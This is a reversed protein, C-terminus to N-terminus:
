LATVKLRLFRKEGTIPLVFTHTRGSGTDAIPTWSGGTLTASGEAEYLIDTIGPPEVFSIILGAGDGNLQAQPLQPTGGTTPNLAFAYELLNPTSDGDSDDLTGSVESPINNAVVWQQYTLPTTFSLIEGLQPDLQEDNDARLRYYYITGPVLNSVPLSVPQPALSAAFEITTTTQTLANPATGYLFRASTPFGNPNVTGELNAVTSIPGSPPMTTPTAGLRIRFITGGSGLTPALTTGYLHGDSHKMLGGVPNSGSNAQTGSGTFELITRLEATAIDYRFVTGLDYAGGGRTTGWLYGREDLYLDGSHLSGGNSTGNNSFKVMTTLAGTAANVTFLTGNNSDGGYLTTGWFRGNGDKRLSGRPVMGSGNLGSFEIITTLQNTATNLKFVTGLDYAGGAATVGWLFGNGDSTLGGEPQAGRNIAGNNSFSKVTTLVGTAAHIKFITGYGPTGATTGWFYGNGDNLLTGSPSTGPTGGTGTFQFITTLVGTTTEVKFVTGLGSSGGGATVGWLFGNGEHALGSSPTAGMNAGSNGTFSLITTYQSGDPKVKYITGFGATGGERTMGWLYGDTSSILAGISPSAASFTTVLEHKKMLSFEINDIVTHQASTWNGGEIVLRAWRGDAGNLNGSKKRYTMIEPWSNQGTRFGFNVGISALRTDNFLATGSTWEPTLNFSEVVGTFQPNSAIEVTGNLQDLAAFQTTSDTTFTSVGFAVKFQPANSISVPETIFKGKANSIDLYHYDGPTAPVRPQLATIITGAGSTKQTTWGLDQMGEYRTDSSSGEAPQEFNIRLPTASLVAPLAPSPIFVTKSCAPNAQDHLTIQQHYAAVPLTLTAPQGYNGQTASNALTWGPSIGANFATVTLTFTFTDDAAIEPTNQINRQLNTVNANLYCGTEVFDIRLNDLGIYADYKGSDNVNFFRLAIVQGPNVVIGSPTALVNTSLAPNLPATTPVPSPPVYTGSAGPIATWSAPIALAAVANSEATAILYSVALTEPASSPSSGSASAAGLRYTELDYQLRDVKLPSSSTNQFIVVHSLDGMANTTPASGFARDTSGSDGLSLIGEVWNGTGNQPLVNFSGSATSGHFWWGPLTSNNAWVASGSIPLSNFSQTYITGSPLPIACSGHNLAVSSLILTLALLPSATALFRGSNPSFHKQASMRPMYTM